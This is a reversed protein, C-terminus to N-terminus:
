SSLALEDARINGQFECNPPVRQLSLLWGAEAPVSWNNRSGFYEGSMM